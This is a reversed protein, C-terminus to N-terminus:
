SPQAARHVRGAERGRVPRRLPGGARGPAPSWCATVRPGINPTDTATVPIRPASSASTSATRRQARDAYLGCPRHLNHWQGQFRGEGDFIQVRHNERDAVYSSGTRIPRSTTRSTSSGPIPAPSAGRCSTVATRRRVQPRALERLRGFSASSAPAAPCIPSTPPGTSPSAARSRPRAHRSRRHDLSRDRPRSSGARHPPPRRHAVAHRRRRAHHRPSPARIQGEGWSRLFAGDGTSSSSRSARRPTFCFVSIRRQGGGRRRGRRLRWGAPLAGWGVVPEFRM